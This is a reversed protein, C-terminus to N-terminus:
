LVAARHLQLNQEALRDRQKVSDRDPLASLYLPQLLSAVSSNNLPEDAMSWKFNYAFQQTSFDPCPKRPRKLIRFFPCPIANVNSDFIYCAPFFSIRWGRHRICVALYLVLYFESVRVTVRHLKEPFRKAKRRRDIITSQDDQRSLQDDSPSRWDINICVFNTGM